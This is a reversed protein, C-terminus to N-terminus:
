LSFETVSRPTQVQPTQIEQAVQALLDEQQDSLVPRRGTKIEDLIAQAGMSALRQGLREGLGEAVMEDEQHSVGSLVMEDEAVVQRSGDLSTVSGKLWLTRGKGDAVELTTSVGLPVSCGGELYRMFAREAKCRLRTDWHNLPALLELVATDDKRCQIGLAGQGVAHLITETPLTQTIRDNWGLRHVGAYALILATYPANPDDLKKLRTNLNGRVDEFRLLPFEKKLQAIRRVSSTGIVSGAPLKDITKYTEMLSKKVILADNPEERELIAGLEMGEPLTTPVDKLSHVVLDVSRDELAIDLEKTFLSKSGIKSLAVDLVKDGTTSMAEIRFHHPYLSKLQTQVLETQVMALQSKRTGITYARPPTSTSDAM